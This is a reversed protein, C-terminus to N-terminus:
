QAGYAFEIDTDPQVAANTVVGWQLMPVVDASCRRQSAAFRLMCTVYAYCTVIAQSLLM